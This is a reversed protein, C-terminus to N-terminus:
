TYNFYYYYYNNNNNNNVSYPSSVESLFKATLIMIIIIAMIIIIMRMPYLFLMISYVQVYPVFQLRRETWLNHRITEPWLVSSLRTRPINSFNFKSTQIKKSKITKFEQM